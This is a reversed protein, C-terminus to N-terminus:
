SARGASPRRARRVAPQGHDGLEAYPRGAAALEAELNLEGRRQAMQEAWVARVMARADPDGLDDYRTDCGLM